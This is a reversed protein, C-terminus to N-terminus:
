PAQRCGACRHQQELLTQMSASAEGREFYFDKRKRPRNGLEDMSRADYLRGNLVVHSASDTHAIDDLPNRELVVFDALKGPELSGIEREMGLYEAGYLTGCRLAEMPTMGGQVFMWLEWHAALGERQGHAGLQVKVGADLLAKAARANKLHGYEEDPVLVPRRARADLLPRPVFTSLKPHAWVDTKGYWYNEGWLGGYGV